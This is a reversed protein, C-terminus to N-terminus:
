GNNNVFTNNPRGLIRFACNGLLQTCATGFAADATFHYVPTNADLFVSDGARLDAFTMVGGPSSSLRTRPGRRLAATRRPQGEMQPHRRNGPGLQVAARHHGPSKRARSPAVTAGAQPRRKRLHSRGHPGRSAS